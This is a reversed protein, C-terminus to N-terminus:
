DRPVPPGCTNHDHCGDLEGGCNYIMDDYEDHLRDYYEQHCVCECREDGELESPANDISGEGYYPTPHRLRFCERPDDSKCACKMTDDM